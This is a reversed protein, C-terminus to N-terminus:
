IYKFRDSELLRSYNNSFKKDKRKFIENIALLYQSGDFHIPVNPIMGQDQMEMLCVAIDQFRQQM